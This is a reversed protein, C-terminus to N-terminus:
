KGPDRRTYRIAVLGRAAGVDRRVGQSSVIIDQGFGAGLKTLPDQSNGAFFQRNWRHSKTGDALTVSEKVYSAPADTIEIRRRDEDHPPASERGWSAHFSVTIMGVATTQGSQVAASEEFPVIKFARVRTADKEWGQVLGGSRPGFIYYRFRPESVWDRDEVGVPKERRLTSFHFVSLGDVAVAAATEHPADNIIELEFTDNLDLDVFALGSKSVAKRPQKNVLVRVGFPSGASPRVTAADTIGVKPKVFSDIVANQPDTKNRPPLDVSLGMVKAILSRDPDACPPTPVWRPPATGFRTVLTGTIRLKGSETLWYDGRFAYTSPSQVKIKHRAMETTLQEVLCNGGSTQWTPPGHFAVAISREGKGEAKLFHHIEDAVTKFYEHFWLGDDDEDDQQAAVAISTALLM